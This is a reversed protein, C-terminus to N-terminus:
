YGQATLQARILDGRDTFLFVSARSSKSGMGAASGEVSLGDKIWVRYHQSSALILPENEAAIFVNRIPEITANAVAAATQAASVSSPKTRIKSPLVKLPQFIPSGSALDQRM